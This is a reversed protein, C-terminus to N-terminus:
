LIGCHNLYYSFAFSTLKCIFDSNLLIFKVFMTIEKININKMDQSKMKTIQSKQHVKRHMLVVSSYIKAKYTKCTAYM